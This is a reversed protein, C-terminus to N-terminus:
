VEKLYFSCNNIKHRELKLKKGNPLITNSDIYGLSTSDLLSSSLVICDEDGKSAHIIRVSLGTNGSLYDFCESIPVSKAQYEIESM